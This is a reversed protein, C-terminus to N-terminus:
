KSPNPRPPIKGFAFGAASNGVIIGLILGICIGAVCGLLQVQRLKKQHRQEERTLPRPRDLTVIRLDM